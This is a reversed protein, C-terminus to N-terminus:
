GRGRRERFAALRRDLADVVHTTVRDLERASLAAGADGPQARAHVRPNGAPWATEIGVGTARAAARPTKEDGPPAGRRVVRAVPPPAAGAGRAAQTVPVCGLRTARAVVREALSAVPAPSRGGPSSEPVTGVRPAVYRGQPPPGGRGLALRGALRLEVRTTSRAPRRAPARLLVRAPPAGGGALRARRRLLQEAFSVSGRWPAWARRAGGPLRSM